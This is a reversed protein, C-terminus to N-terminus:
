TSPCSHDRLTHAIDQTYFILITLFTEPLPTLGLIERPIRFQLNYVSLVAIIENFNSLKICYMTTHKWM